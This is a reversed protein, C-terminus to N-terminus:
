CLGELEMLKRMAQIKTEMLNDIITKELDTLVTLGGIKKARIDEIVFELAQEASKFNRQAIQLETTGTVKSCTWCKIVENNAFTIKKDPQSQGDQQKKVWDDWCDACYYLYNDTSENFYGYALTEM